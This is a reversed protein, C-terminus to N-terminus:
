AGDGDGCHSQARSDGDCYTIPSRHPYANASSGYTVSDAHAHTFQHPDRRCDGAPYRCGPCADCYTVVCEGGANAGNVTNNFTVNAGAASGGGNSTDISTTTGAGNLVVPSDFSVADGTTTIARPSTVSVVGTGATSIQSSAEKGCGGSPAVSGAM